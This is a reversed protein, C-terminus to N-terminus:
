TKNNAQEDLATTKHEFHAPLQMEGLLEKIRLHISEKVSKVLLLLRFILADEWGVVM